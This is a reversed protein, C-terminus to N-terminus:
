RAPERSALAELIAVKSEGVVGGSEIGPNAACWAAASRHRIALSCIWLVIPPYFVWPPWFEWLAIRRFRGVLGRRGRWTFLPVVFKVVVYGIALTLLLGLPLNERITELSEMLEGG